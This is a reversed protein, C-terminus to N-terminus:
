SSRRRRRRKRGSWNPERENRMGVWGKEEISMGWLIISPSPHTEEKEKSPLCSRAFVLLLSALPFSIAHSICISSPSPHVIEKHKLGTYNHPLWLNLSGEKKDLETENHTHTPVLSPPFILVMAHVLFVDKKRRPQRPILYAPIGNM